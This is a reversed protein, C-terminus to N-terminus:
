GADSYFTFESFYDIIEEVTKDNQITQFIKPIGDFSDWVGYEPIIYEEGIIDAVYKKAEHKDVMKIYEPNKDHLKLWQLKENFTAPHKFNPWKGVNRKHKLAIYLKDPLIHTAKRLFEMLM